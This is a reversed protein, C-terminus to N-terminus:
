ESFRGSDGPKPIKWVQSQSLEDVPITIELIATPVYGRSVNMCVNREM